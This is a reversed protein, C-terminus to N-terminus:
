IYSYDECIINKITNGGTEGTISTIGSLTLSHTDVPFSNKHEKHVITFLEIGM